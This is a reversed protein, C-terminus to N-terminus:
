KLHVILCLISICLNLASTKLHALIKWMYNAYFILLGLIQKEIFPQM